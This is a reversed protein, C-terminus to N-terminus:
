SNSDLWRSFNAPIQNLPTGYTQGLIPNILVKVSEQNNNEDAIQVTRSSIGVGVLAGCEVQINQPFPIGNSYQVVQTARKVV